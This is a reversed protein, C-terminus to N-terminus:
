RTASAAPRRCWASTRFAQQGWHLFEYREKNRSFELFANQSLADASGFHDVAVSHDIVLDVPIQPNVREPDGGLRAMASRMAALDVLAPVGTFDQVLVRAPTFPVERAEPDRADYRALTRADDATVAVGDESRLAAELLVKITLPTRTLDRDLAALRHYAVPGASTQLEALTGLSNQKTAHGESM